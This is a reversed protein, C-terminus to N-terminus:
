SVAHALIKAREQAKVEDIFFQTTIEPGGERSWNSAFDILKVEYGWTHKRYIIPRGKVVANRSYNKLTQTKEPKAM